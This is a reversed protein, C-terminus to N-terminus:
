FNVIAADMFHLIVKKLTWKKTKIYTRYYEMLQDFIDVGGMCRNYMSVVNPCSVSKTTKTKKDWRQVESLPLAEYTSSMMTVCKNDKWKVLYTDNEEYKALFQQYEGRNLDTDKEM